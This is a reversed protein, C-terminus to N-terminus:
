NTGMEWQKFEDKCLYATSDPYNFISPDLLKSLIVSVPSELLVWIQNSNSM